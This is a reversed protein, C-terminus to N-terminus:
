NTIVKFGLRNAANNWDEDFRQIDNQQLHKYQDYQKM